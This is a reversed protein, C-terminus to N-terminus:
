DVVEYKSDIEKVPKLISDDIEFSTNILDPYLNQIRRIIGLFHVNKYLFTENRDFLNNINIKYTEDIKKKRKNTLYFHGFVFFLCTRSLKAFHFTTNAYYGRLLFFYAINILITGTPMM